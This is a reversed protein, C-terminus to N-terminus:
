RKGETYFKIFRHNKQYKLTKLLFEPVKNIEYSHGDSKYFTFKTGRDDMYAVESIFRKVMGDEGIDRKLFAYFRFHYFIDKMLTRFDYRQPGMMVMGAIRSPVSDIDFAHITTIIPHGTKASNLVDVMEEGRSEAVLLWDPNSRLANRVLNQISAEINKEDAQWINIDLRDSDLNDLELVNDIIVLRTNDPMSNILYKQLETKGSGTVGAIVLSMQSKILVQFLCILEANLFTSDNDVIPPEKAIRISFNLCKDSNKRAISPHTASIRLTGISADLNPTQYSFQKECLNAVQRIFDKAEDETIYVSSKKRGYKNHLYFLYKGNYTIDTIEKDSLFERLFSNSIFTNAKTIDM